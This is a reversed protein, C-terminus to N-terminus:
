AIFPFKKFHLTITVDGELISSPQGKSDRIYVHLYRLESLKMPVYYTSDYIINCNETETLYVRRLLPVEQTGVFSEQCVNCYIFLEKCNGKQLVSTVSIETLGVMWYGDFQLQRNFQVRFDYPKNDFLERDDLSSLIM